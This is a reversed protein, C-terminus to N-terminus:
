KPEEVFGRAVGTVIYSHCSQKSKYAVLSVNHSLGM